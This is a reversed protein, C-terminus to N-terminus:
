SALYQKIISTLKRCTQTIKGEENDIVVDYIDYHKLWAQTEKWREEFVRGGDKQRRAIRRKLISIKPLRIGIAFASPYFKKITKVGRWDLKLLIPYHGKMAKEFAKRSIGKYEGYVRKWELMEQNVIAKEFAKQTVFFYDKGQKERERRKRSTTTIVKTLHISRRLTKILTDQGSGSPGSIIIIKKTKANRERMRHNEIREEM